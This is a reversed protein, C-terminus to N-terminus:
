PKEKQKILQGVYNACKTRNFLTAPRLYKAKEPDAIWERCKMAIIQHLQACTYGEKLRSMILGTNSDVPPYDRGAKDNLFSLIELAQAKQEQVKKRKENYKPAVHAVDTLFGCRLTAGSTNASAEGQYCGCVATTPANGRGCVPCEWGTLM